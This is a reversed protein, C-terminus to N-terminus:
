NIVQFWVVFLYETNSKFLAVFPKSQTYINIIDNHTRIHITFIRSLLEFSYSMRNKNVFMSQISIFIVCSFSLRYYNFSFYHSNFLHVHLHCKAPLHWQITRECIFCFLQIIHYINVCVGVYM